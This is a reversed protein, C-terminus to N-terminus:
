GLGEAKLVKASVKAFLNAIPVNAEDFEARKTFVVNGADDKIQYLVSITTPTLLVEQITISTLNIQKM